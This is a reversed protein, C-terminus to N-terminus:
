ATSIILMSKLSVSESTAFFASSRVYTMMSVGNV